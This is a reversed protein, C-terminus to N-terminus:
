GTQKHALVTVKFVQGSFDTYPQAGGIIQYTDGGYKLVGTSDAGLVAASPPATCKWVQTSVDVDTQPTEDARLPRFRCGSVAVEVPTEPRIGLSDTDTPSTFSVFTVTQAGFM